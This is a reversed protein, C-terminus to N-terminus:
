EWDEPKFRRTRKTMGHRIKSDVRAAKATVGPHTPKRIKPVVMAQQIIKVLRQIADLRNEEQTRYRRADIIFIGDGTVRKGALKELRGKVEPTLEKANRINFRLQAATAVKNINQGGPGSAQVYEIQIESEDLRLSPTIEIM